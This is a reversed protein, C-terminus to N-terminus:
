TPPSRGRVAWTQGDDTSHTVFVRRTDKSTRAIIEREHDDGRNWTTLLWITGTEPDVVACPNGCTNGADDWVM